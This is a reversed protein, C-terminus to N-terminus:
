GSATGATQPRGEEEFATVATIPASSSSHMSSFLEAKSSGTRVEGGAAAEISRRSVPSSALASTRQLGSLSQRLSAVAVRPASGTNACSSRKGVSAHTPSSPVQNAGAANAESSAGSPRQGKETCGKESSQEDATGDRRLERSRGDQNHHQQQQQRFIPAQRYGFGRLCETTGGRM